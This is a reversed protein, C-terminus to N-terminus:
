RRGGEAVARLDARVEDRLSQPGTLRVRTGLQYLRSRFAARNTVPITLEVEGAEGGPRVYTAQGLMQEVRDRYPRATVVIADVPPDVQWSVPDLRPRAPPAAPVAATGPADIRVDQMRAVAFVKDQTDDDERATLYWGSQTSYVKTPHAVRRKGKYSFRILCHRAAARRALELQESGAAASVAQFDGEGAPAGPTEVFDDVLDALEAARAARLLEARQRPTFEVRLRNDVATLVYRADEGQAAVNRILWGLEELQRLDRRLQDLRDQEAEAGYRVVELLRTAPVPQGDARSLVFLLSTLREMPARQDRGSAAAM